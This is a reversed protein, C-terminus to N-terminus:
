SVICIEIDNQYGEFVNGFTPHDLFSGFRDLAHYYLINNKEM